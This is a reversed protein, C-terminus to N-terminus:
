EPKEMARRGCPVRAVIRTGGGPETDVQLVGDALEVRERMLALGFHRDGDVAGPDFGVGDDEVVLRLDDGDQQLSVRVMSASSHRIANRLAERAVQYVLLQVLPTGGSEKVDIDIQIAPSLAEMHRALLQLMQGLGGSGLPSARLNRIVSRMAESAEDTARILEPVDEELALLRGTALDQGLVQGMLHVKFLPPLVEDHLGAAIALREDRREDMLHSTADSVAQAQARIRANAGELAQSGSLAKRALLAPLTFLLLGWYGVTLYVQALLLSLLGFALYTAVFDSLRGIRLRGISARLSTREHLMLVSIVLGYNAIGDVGVAILAGLAVRPFDGVEGGMLSFAAAAAMVSLSTEARNFLARTLPIARRLERLDIFGVFAVVGAVAPGYLFGVALLLPMDMGLQPGSDTQISALGIGAVCATWALLGWGAIRFQEAALVSGVILVVLDGLIVTAM